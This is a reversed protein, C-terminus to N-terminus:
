DAGGAGTARSPLPSEGGAAAATAAGAGSEDHAAKDDPAAEGRLRAIEAAQERVRERLGSVVADVEDMRYGRVATDFGIAATALDVPGGVTLPESDPAAPPELLGQGFRGTLWWGALVYVAAGLFVVIVTSM